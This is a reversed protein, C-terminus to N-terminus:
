NIVAHRYDKIKLAKLVGETLPAEPMLGLEELPMTGASEYVKDMEPLDISEFGVAERIENKTFSKALIMWAVLSAKDKQLVDIGSYDAKLVEGTEGFLPALWRTLKDLYADVSPCIADSWLAAKAEKYNSYTRDQSGSLLMNPVNYADAIKGGFTGLAALINLEVVTMGFNTWKHDKNTIVVSGHKSAGTYEDKFQQKIQSLLPKGVGTTGGNEGLITLIGVAGHHQFSAVLADYASGSGTVSKLIPKLRSMGKLHGTGQQDYDPNFEKWHLVQEKAYDIQNGSMLFKYGQIPDLYTGLVLEV